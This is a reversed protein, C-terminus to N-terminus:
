SDQDGTRESSDPSMTTSTPDLVALAEVLAAAVAAQVVRLLETGAPDLTAPSSGGGPDRHGTELWGTSRHIAGPDSPETAEAPGKGSSSRPRGSQDAAPPNELPFMMQDEESAPADVGTAAEGLAEIARRVREPGWDGSEFWPRPEIVQVARPILRVGYEDTGPDHYPELEMSVRVTAGHGVRTEPTLGAGVRDFLLPPRDSRIGRFIFGGDKEETWPDRRRPVTPREAAPIDDGPNEVPYAAIADEALARAEAMVPEIRAILTHAATAELRLDLHYGGDAGEHLAPLVALAVPTTVRPPPKSPETVPPGDKRFFRNFAM